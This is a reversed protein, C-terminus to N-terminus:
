VVPLCWNQWRQVIQWCFVPIIEDQTLQHETTQIHTPPSGDMVPDPM